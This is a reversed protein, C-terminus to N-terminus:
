CDRRLDPVIRQRQLQVPAISALIRAQRHLWIGFVFWALVKAKRIAITNWLWTQEVLEILSIVQNKARVTHIIRGLAQRHLVRRQHAIPVRQELISQAELQNGINVGVGFQKADLNGRWNQGFFRETNVIVRSHENKLFCRGVRAGIGFRLDSIAHCPFFHIFDRRKNTAFGGRGQPQGGVLPLAVAVAACGDQGRNKAAERGPQGPQQHQLQNTKRGKRQQEVCQGIQGVTTERQRFRQPQQDYGPQRPEKGAEACGIALREHSKPRQRDPQAGGHQKHRPCNNAPARPRLQLDKEAFPSRCQQCCLPQKQCREKAEQDNAGEVGIQPM